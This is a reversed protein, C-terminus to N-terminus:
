IGGVFGEDNRGCRVQGVVKVKFEWEGVVNTVVMWTGGYIRWKEVM